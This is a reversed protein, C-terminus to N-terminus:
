VFQKWYYSSYYFLFERARGPDSTIIPTFLPKCMCVYVYCRDSRLRETFVGHGSRVAMM